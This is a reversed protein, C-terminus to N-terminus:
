GLGVGNQQRDGAPSSYLYAIPYKRIVHSVINLLINPMKQNSKVITILKCGMAQNRSCEDRSYVIRTCIIFNQGQVVNFSGSLRACVTCRNCIVFWCSALFTSKDPCKNLILWILFISFQFVYLSKLHLIQVIKIFHSAFILLNNYLALYSRYLVKM